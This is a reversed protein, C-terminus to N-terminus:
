TALRERLMAFVTQRDQATFTEGNRTVTASKAVGLADIATTSTWSKGWMKHREQTIKIRRNM